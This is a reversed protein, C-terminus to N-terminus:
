PQPAGRLGTLLLQATYSGTDAASPDTPSKSFLQQQSTHEANNQLGVCPRFCPEYCLQMRWTNYRDWLWWFQGNWVRGANEPWPAVLAQHELSHRKASGQMLLGSGVPIYM